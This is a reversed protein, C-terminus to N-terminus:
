RYCCAPRRKEPASHAQKSCSQMKGLGDCATKISVANGLENLVLLDGYRCTSAV